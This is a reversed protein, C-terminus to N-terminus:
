ASDRFIGLTEAFLSSLDLDSPREFGRSLLTVGSIRAMKLSVVGAFHAVPKDPFAKARWQRWRHSAAVLYLADERFVMGYPDYVGERPKDEYIPQYLLRVSYCRAVADFLLKVTHPDPAAALSSKVLLRANWDDFLAVQRDSFYPRFKNWLADLGEVAPTGAFPKLLERALLVALGEDFTAALRLGERVEPAVSYTNRKKDHVVWAFRPDGLLKLDRYLTRKDFKDEPALDLRDWVRRLIYDAPASNAEKVVNLITLLRILQSGRGRRPM